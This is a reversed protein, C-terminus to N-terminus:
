DLRFVGDLRNRNDFVNNYQLIKYENMLKEYEAPLGSMEYWEGDKDCVAGAGIIPLEEKLELLFKDYSSLEMGMQQMLYSGFYNASMEGGSAELPYNAWIIYPTTYWQQLKVLDYVGFNEGLIESIFEYELSPWHDGFMVIMTPEEVDSFYDVLREFAKDSENILSLYMEAQPYEEAYELSVTPEYGAADSETYGGHNQMTICFLFLKEEEEKETYLEILKEYASWDSPYMRILEYEDEWNSAGYFEDFGMNSYVQKRNWNLESNPHVAVTTYGMGNLKDAMGYEPDRSYLQYAVSGAPLFQKTNGTLFEWETDSTGGGYTPVHLYGKIVNTDMSHIAPLIEEESKISGFHEFDTLSENMIVILNEPTIVEEEQKIQITKEANQEAEDAIAQVSGASYDQPQEVSMYRSECLMIYLYGKEKYDMDVDWLYVEEFTIHNIGYSAALFFGALLGTRILYNKVSKKGFALKQFDRQFVLFVLLLLLLLGVKPPLEFTYSGIVSMATGASFVDLLMLPRGRFEMVYYNVLSLIALVSSYVTIAAAAQRFILLVVAFLIYYLALNKIIFDAAVKFEGEGIILQVMLFLFAPTIVLLLPDLIKIVRKEAAKDKIHRPMFLLIFVATDGVAMCILKWPGLLAPSGATVWIGINIAALLILIITNYFINVIKDKM